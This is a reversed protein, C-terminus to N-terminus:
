KANNENQRDIAIIVGGYQLAVTRTVGALRSIYYALMRNAPDNHDFILYKIGRIKALLAQENEAYRPLPLAPRRTALMTKGPWQSAAQVSQEASNEVELAFTRILQDTPALDGAEVRYYRTKDALMFLTAVIFLMVVIGGRQGIFGSLGLARQLRILLATGRYLLFTLVLLAWGADAAAMGATIAALLATGSLSNLLQRRDAITVLIVLLLGAAGVGLYRNGETAFPGMLGVGLAELPNSWWDLGIWGAQLVLVLVTVIILGIFLHKQLRPDSPQRYWNWALALPYGLGAPHLSAIVAVSLLQLFFWANHAGGKNRYRRDLWSGVGFMLLLFPGTGIADIQDLTLPAILLLGTAILATEGDLRRRSWDYLFLAGGFMVVLTFVKAAIISGPWYIALPAFLLARLDPVGFVVVPNVIRDVISWNLLLARAAGEEIGYPGFRLLNLALISGGWVILLAIGVYRGKIHLSM